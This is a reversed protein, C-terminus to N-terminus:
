LPKENNYSNRKIFKKKEKKGLFNTGLIGLVIMVAGIMHYYVIQENLFLVGAIITLLTSLNSFVSMKSAEIYTLAYNSLFATLLSSLVGLYLISILFAGNTFPQFYLNITGTRIHNVIAIMNFCLFGIATMMYTLDILRFTKTMKRALINYGASALASLLIFIIGTFSTAQTGLDKMVFIYVVGAVSLLVSLKQWMNTHEKLFYSALVMTFIPISAQIIGAESSSTYVLGFAQFAFFLAPYFLALPLISLMNKFSINLKIFGFIVPIMAVLFAVTFRHALIDLPGTVALTLKVFMFSFGIIFAYLLAAIYAKKTNEM